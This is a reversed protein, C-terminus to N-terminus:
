SFDLLLSALSVGAMPTVDLLQRLGRGQHGGVVLDLEM